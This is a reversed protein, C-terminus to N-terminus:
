ATTLVPTVTSEETATADRSVVVTGNLSFLTWGNPVGIHFGDYPDRTVPLNCASEVAQSTPSSQHAPVTTASTHSPQTSTTSSASKHRGASASCGPGALVLAAITCIAFAATRARIGTM